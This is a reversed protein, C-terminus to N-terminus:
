KNKSVDILYIVGKLSQNKFKGREFWYTMLRKGSSSDNSLM